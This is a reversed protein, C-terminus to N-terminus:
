TRRYKGSNRKDGPQIVVYLTFNNPRKTDQLRQSTLM